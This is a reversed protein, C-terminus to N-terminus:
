VNCVCTDEADRVVEQEEIEAEEDAEWGRLDFGVLRAGELLDCLWFLLAFTAERRECELLQASLPTLLSCFTLASTVHQICSYNLGVDEM